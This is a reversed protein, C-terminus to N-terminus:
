IKEGTAGGSGAYCITDKKRVHRRRFGDLTAM